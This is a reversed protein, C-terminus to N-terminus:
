FYSDKTPLFEPFTSHLGSVIDWKILDWSTDAKSCIEELASLVKNEEHCVLNLVTRKSRILLELEEIVNQYKIGYM